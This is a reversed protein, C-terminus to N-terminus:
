KSPPEAPSALWAPGNGVMLTPLDPFRWLISLTADFGQPFLSRDLVQSRKTINILDSQQLALTMGFFAFTKRDEHLM